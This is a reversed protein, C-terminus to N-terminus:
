ERLRRRFTARCRTEYFNCITPRQRAPRPNTASLHDLSAKEAIAPLLAADVSLASLTPFAMETVFGTMWLHLDLGDPVNMATALDAYAADAYGKNFRLIHPLLIGILTGHHLHLEGLPTAM